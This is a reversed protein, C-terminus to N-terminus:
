TFLDLTWQLQSSNLVGFFTGLSLVHYNVLACPLGQSNLIPEHTQKCSCRTTLAHTFCITGSERRPRPLPWCLHVQDDREEHPKLRTSLCLQTGMMGRDGPESFTMESTLAETKKDTCHLCYPYMVWLDAHSNFILYAQLAKLVSFM